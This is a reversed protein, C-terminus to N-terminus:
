SDTHITDLMMAAEIFRNNWRYKGSFAVYHNERPQACSIEGIGSKIASFCIHVTSCRRDVVFM